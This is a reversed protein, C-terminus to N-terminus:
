HHNVIGYWGHITYKAVNVMFILWIYTYIGYMSGIPITCLLFFYGLAYGLKFLKLWWDNKSIDFDMPTCGPLNVHFRCIVWKSLFIIKWVEMIINWTFRRPHVFMWVNFRYTSYIRLLHRVMGQSWNKQTTLRMLQLSVLRYLWFIGPIGNFDDESESWFWFVYLCVGNWCIMTWFFSLTLQVM